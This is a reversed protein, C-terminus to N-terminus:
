KRRREPFSPPPHQKHPPIYSGGELLEGGQQQDQQRAPTQAEDSAFGLDVDYRADDMNTDASTSAALADGEPAPPNVDSAKNPDDQPTASSEGARSVASAAQEAVRERAKIARKQARTMGAYPGDELVHGGGQNGSAKTVRNRADSTVGRTAGPAVNNAKM